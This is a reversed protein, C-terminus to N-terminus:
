DNTLPRVRLLQSRVSDAWNARIIKPYLTLSVIPWLVLAVPGILLAYGLKQWTPIVEYERRFVISTCYMASLIVVVGLLSIVISM